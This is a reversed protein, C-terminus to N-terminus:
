QVLSSLRCMAEHCRRKAIPDYQTQKTAWGQPSVNDAPWLACKLWNATVGVFSIVAIIMCVQLYDFLNCGHYGSNPLSVTLCGSLWLTPAVMLGKMNPLTVTLWYKIVLEGVGLLTIFCSCRSVGLPSVSESNGGHLCAPSAGHREAAARKTRKMVYVTELRGDFIQILLKHGSTFEEVRSDLGAPLLCSIAIDFPDRTSTSCWGDCRSHM